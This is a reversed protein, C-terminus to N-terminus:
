CAPRISVFVVSRVGTVLLYGPCWCGATLVWLPFWQCNILSGNTEVGPLPNVPIYRFWHDMGLLWCGALWGGALWGGGGGGVVWGGWAGTLPLTNRELLVSFFLTLFACRGRTEFVRYIAVFLSTGPEHTNITTASGALDFFGNPQLPAGLRFSM